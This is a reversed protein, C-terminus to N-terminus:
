DHALANFHMWDVVDTSTLYYPDIDGFDYYQKGHWEFVVNKNKDLEQVVDCKVKAHTSGPSSSKDFFNFRSLDMEITEHGILLYNGNELVIFEHADQKLGNKCTITDVTKFTSDMLYFKENSYYSLMGNTQLRLGGSFRGETYQKFYIVKGNKDLILDTPFGVAGSADLKIPSFFYYGESAKNVKSVYFSPLEIKQASIELMLLLTLLSIFLAKM